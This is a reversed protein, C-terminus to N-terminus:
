GPFVKFWNHRQVINLKVIYKTYGQIFLQSGEVEFYFNRYAPTKLCYFTSSISIKVTVLLTEFNEV